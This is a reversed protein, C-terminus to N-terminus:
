DGDISVGYPGDLIAGIWVITSEGGSVQFSVAKNAHDFAFNTVHSSSEILLQVEEEGIRIIQPYDNTLLSRGAISPDPNPLIRLQVVKQMQINIVTAGGQEGLETAYLSPRLEMSGPHDHPVTANVKVWYFAGPELLVSTPLFLFEAGEGEARLEIRTQRDIDSLLGWEFSSAEGPQLEVTIEGAVQQLALTHTGSAVLALFVLVATLCLRVTIM